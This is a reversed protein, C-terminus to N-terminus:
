VSVCTLGPVIVDLKFTLFVRSILIIKSHFVIRKLWYHYLHMMQINLKLWVACSIDQNEDIIQAVTAILNLLYSKDGFFPVNQYDDPVFSLKEIWNSLEYNLSM